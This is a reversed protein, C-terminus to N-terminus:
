EAATIIEAMKDVVQEISLGNCDIVAECKQFYRMREESFSYRYADELAMSLEGHRRQFVEEPSAVLAIKKFEALWARSIEKWLMGEGVDILTLSDPTGKAECDRIIVQCDQFFKEWGFQNVVQFATGAGNLQAVAEDLHVITCNGYKEAYRRTTTTKGVASPGVIFIIM